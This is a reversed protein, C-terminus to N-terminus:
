FLLWNLKLMSKKENEETNYVQIQILGPMVHKRAVRRSFREGDHGGTYLLPMPSPARSQVFVDPMNFGESASPTKVHRHLELRQAHQFGAGARGVGLASNKDFRKQREINKIFYQSCIFHPLLLPNSQFHKQMLNFEFAKIQKVPIIRHPRARLKNLAVFLNQRLIPNIYCILRAKKFNRILHQLM